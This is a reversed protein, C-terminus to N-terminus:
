KFIDRSEKKSGFIRCSFAVILLLSGMILYYLPFPVILSFFLMSFGFFAFKKSKERALINKFFIKYKKQTSTKVKDIEPFLQAKKMYSYIEGCTVIELNILSPMYKDVSPNKQATFIVTKHEGGYNRYVSLIESVGLPEFSFSFFVDTDIDTLAIFKGKNECTHGLAKFLDMFFDVTKCEKTVAFHRMIEEARKSDESKLLKSASRKGSLFYFLAALSAAILSAVLLSLAATLRNYRLAAFGITLGCVFVFLTDLIVPLRYKM